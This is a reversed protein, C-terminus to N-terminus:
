QPLHPPPLAMRPAPAPSATRGGTVHLDAPTVRTDSLHPVSFENKRIPTGTSIYEHALGAEQFRGNAEDPTGTAIDAKEPDFNYMDEAHMVVDIEFQRRQVAPDSVVRVSAEMWVAHGGIAKQWNETEPYPYRDGLDGVVVVDSVM